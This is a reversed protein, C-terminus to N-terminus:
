IETNRKGNRNKDEKPMTVECQQSEKKSILPLVEDIDPIPVVIKQSDEPIRAVEVDLERTEFPKSRNEKEKILQAINRTMFDKLEQKNKELFEKEIRRARDSEIWPKRLFMAFPANDEIFKVVEFEEKKSTGNASMSIQTLKGCLNILKGKFLEIGGLSTIMAPEGLTEWTIEIM